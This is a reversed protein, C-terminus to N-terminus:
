EIDNSANAHELEAELGKKFLQWLAISTLPHLPLALLCLFNHETLVDCVEVPFQAERRAQHFAANQNNEDVDADTTGDTLIIADSNCSAAVDFLFPFGRRGSETM